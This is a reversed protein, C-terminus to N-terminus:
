HYYTNNFPQANFGSYKHKMGADLRAPVVPSTLKKLLKKEQKRSVYIDYFGVQAIRRWKGSLRSPPYIQ